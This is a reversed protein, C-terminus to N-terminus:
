AAGGEANKSGAFLMGLEATTWTHNPTKINRIYTM